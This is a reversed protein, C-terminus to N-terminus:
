ACEGTSSNVDGCTVARKGDDMFRWPVYCSFDDSAGRIFGQMNGCERKMGIEDARFGHEVRVLFSEIDEMYLDVVKDNMWEKRTADWSQYIWTKMTPIMFTSSADM